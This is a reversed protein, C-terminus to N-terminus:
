NQKSTENKINSCKFWWQQFTHAVTEAHTRQPNHGGREFSLRTCNPVLEEIEEFLEPEVYPDDQSSINLVPHTCRELNAKNERFSFDTACHLVYTMADASIGKPFGLKRFVWVMFPKFIAGIIPTTILKYGRRPKSTRFVRYPQAGVSSIIVLGKIRNPHNCTASLVMPGGMSHGMLICEEINMSDMFEVIATERDVISTTSINTKTTSIDLNPMALALCRFETLHPFLFRFDHPRGPYGHVMIIPPHPSNASPSEWYGFRFNNTEIFQVPDADTTITTM